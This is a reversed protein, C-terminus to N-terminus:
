FSDTIIMSSLLNNFNSSEPASRIESLANKIGMRWTSESHILWGDEEGVLLNLMENNFSVDLDFCIKILWNMFTNM